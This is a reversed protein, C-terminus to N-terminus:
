QLIKQDVEFARCVEVADEFVKKSRKEGDTLSVKLNETPYALSSQRGYWDVYEHLSNVVDANVWLEDLEKEADFIKQM